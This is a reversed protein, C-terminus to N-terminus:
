PSSAPAPSRGLRGHLQGTNTIQHGDKARVLHHASAWKAVRGTTDKNGIIEL